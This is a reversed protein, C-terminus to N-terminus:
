PINIQTIVLHASVPLTGGTLPTITLPLLNAAPNRVEIVSNAVTTNILFTGVIQSAAVARGVVTQGLEVFGAGSNLALILQGPEAVTVAFTVQYIGIAPLVFTSASARVIVSNTPGDRPFQVPSGAAVTVANDPPMLAFFDAFNL